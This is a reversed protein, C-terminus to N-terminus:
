KGTLTSLNAGDQENASLKIETNSGKAQHPLAWCPQSQNISARGTRVVQQNEASWTFGDFSDASLFPGRIFFDNLTIWESVRATKQRHRTQAGGSRQAVGEKSKLEKRRHVADGGADGKKGEEEYSAELIGIKRFHVEEFSLVDTALM